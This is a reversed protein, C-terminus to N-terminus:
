KTSGYKIDIVNIEQYSLIKSIDSVGVVEKIKSSTTPFLEFEIARETDMDVYFKFLNQSENKVLAYDQPEQTYTDFGDFFLGKKGLVNAEYVKYANGRGEPNSDWFLTYARNKDEQIDLFFTYDKNSFYQVELPTTIANGVDLDLQNLFEKEPAATFRKNIVKIPERKPRNAIEAEIRKQRLAQNVKQMSDRAIRKRKETLVFAEYDTRKSADMIIYKNKKEYFVYNSGSEINLKKIWSDAQSSSFKKDPLADFVQRTLYYTGIGSLIGFGISTAGRNLEFSETMIPERYYGYAAGATVGAATLLYNRSSYKKEWAPNVLYTDEYLKHKTSVVPKYSTCAGLVVLVSILAIWRSNSCVLLKVNM